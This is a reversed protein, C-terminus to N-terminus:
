ASAEEGEEEEEEEVRNLAELYADEAAKAVSKAQRSTLEKKGNKVMLDIFDHWAGAVKPSVKLVAARELTGLLEGIKMAKNKASKVWTNNDKDDGAPIKTQLIKTYEKIQAEKGEVKSIDDLERVTARLNSPLGHFEGGNRWHNLIEGDCKAVRGLMSIHGQSKGLHEAIQTDTLDHKEKLTKCAMMLDPATLSDRNTNETLNLMRAEAESIPSRVVARITGDATNPVLSKKEAKREGILKAFDESVEGAEKETKVKPTNLRRISEYRRFGAVLAYPQKTGKKYFGEVNTPRVVVAENQGDLFIGKTLGTIGEADSDTESHESIVNALSRSNWTFDAYIDSLPIHKIEDEKFIQNDAMPKGVKNKDTKDPQPKM